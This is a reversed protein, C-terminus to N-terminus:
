SNTIARRGSKGNARPEKKYEIRRPREVLLSIRPSKTSVLKMTSERRLCLSIRKKAMTRGTKTMEIAQLTLLMEFKELVRALNRKKRTTTSSSM